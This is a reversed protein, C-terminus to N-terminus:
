ILDLALGYSSYFTFLVTWGTMMGTLWQLDKRAVEKGEAGESLRNWPLHLGDLTLGGVLPYLSTATLRVAISVRDLMLVLLLVGQSIGLTALMNILAPKKSHRCCLEMMQLKVTLNLVIIVTFSTLTFFVTLIRMPYWTLFRDITFINQSHVLLPLDELFFFCNVLGIGFFPLGILLYACVLSCMKRLLTPRRLEQFIQQINPQVLYNFQCLTYVEFLHPPEFSLLPMQSFDLPPGERFVLALVSFILFVIHFMSTVASIYSVGKIRPMCTLPM